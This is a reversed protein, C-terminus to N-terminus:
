NKWKEDNRVIESDIVKISIRSRQKSHNMTIGYLVTKLADVMRGKRGILKGAYRKPIYISYIHHGEDDIDKSIEPEYGSILMTVSSLFDQIM